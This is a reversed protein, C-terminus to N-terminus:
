TAELPELHQALLDVRGRRPRGILERSISQVWGSSPEPSQNSMRRDIPGNLDAMWREAFPQTGTQRLM